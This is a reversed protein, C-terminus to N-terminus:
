VNTTFSERYISFECLENWASFFVELVEFRKRRKEREPKHQCAKRRNIEKEKKQGKLILFIRLLTSRKSIYHGKLILFSRLLM